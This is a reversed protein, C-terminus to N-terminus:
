GRMLRLVTGSNILSHALLAIGTRARMRNVTLKTMELAFDADRLQSEAAILNERTVELSSRRSELENKSTAGLEIQVTDVQAIAADISAIAGEAGATSSLDIGDLNSIEGLSGASGDLLKSGNFESTEVKDNFSEVLQRAATDFAQQATASNGGENAAGIALTRLQTLDSRLQGVSSSAYDYKTITQSTNEIEQNLSAIRSRLQESIVLGAPDDSARNIRQGSALKEMSSFMSEFSASITRPLSWGSSNLKVTLGM